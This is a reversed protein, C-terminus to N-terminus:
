DLIKSIIDLLDAAVIGERGYLKATKKLRKICAEDVAFNDKRDKELEIRLEKDEFEFVATYRM